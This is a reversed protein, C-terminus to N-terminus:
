DSHPTPLMELQRCPGSTYGSFTSGTSLPLCRNWPTDALGLLFIYNGKLEHWDLYNRTVVSSLMQWRAATWVKRKNLVVLYVKLATLRAEFM